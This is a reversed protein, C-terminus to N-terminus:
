SKVFGFYLVLIALFLILGTIWVTPALGAEEEDAEAREEPPPAAAPAAELRLALREFFQDALTRAAGDVVRQGLQALKGGVKATVAYALVTASGDERLSVRAEGSAFGAAGGKGEGKLRYSEPARIDELVVRGAFKAAVPGVRAGVTAEFANDGSRTLSECGPIAAALVEPDNLAEWVAERPAAIRREGTLEM